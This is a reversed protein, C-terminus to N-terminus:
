DKKNGNIKKEGGERRHILVVRQATMLVWQKRKQIGGTRQFAIDEGLGWSKREKERLLKKGSL